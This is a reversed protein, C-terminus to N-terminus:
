IRNISYTLTAGRVSYTATHGNPAYVAAPGSQTRGLVVHVRPRVRDGVELKHGDFQLGALDISRTQGAPFNGSGGARAVVRDGNLREIEFSMVFAGNNTCAIHQVHLDTQGSESPNM